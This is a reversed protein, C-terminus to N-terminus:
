VHARGIKWLSWSESYKRDVKASLDQKQPRYPKSNLTMGAEEPTNDAKVSNCYKCCAVVNNWEHNGGRSVPIVHDITRVDEPLYSGCYQCEYGDRLFVNRRSLTAGARPLKVYSKLILAKPLDFYGTVTAIRHFDGYNFPIDVKGGFMLMVARKWSIVNIVEESSNLLLVPNKM